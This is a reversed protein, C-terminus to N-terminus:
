RKAMKVIAERQRQLGLQQHPRRRLERARRPPVKRGCTPGCLAVRRPGNWASLRRPRRHRRLSDPACGRLSVDCCGASIPPTSFPSTTRSAQAVRPFPRHLRPSRASGLSAACAGIHYGHTRLVHACFAHFTGFWPRAARLHTNDDQAAAAAAPVARATAAALLAETRRRMEAAAKNTFTLALVSGPAVGVQTVLHAIRQAVAMGMRGGGGRTRSVLWLSVHALVLTKGSGPGAVVLVPWRMPVPWRMRRCCRPCGRACALANGPRVPQTVAQRQEANLGGGAGGREEDRPRAAGVCPGSRADARVVPSPLLPPPRQPPSHPAARRVFVEGSAAPAPPVSRPSPLADQALAVPRRPLASRREDDGAAPTVTPRKFPAHVPAADSRAAGFIFRRCPSGPLPCDHTQM